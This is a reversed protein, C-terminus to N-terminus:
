ITIGDLFFDLVFALEGWFFEIASKKSAATRGEFESDVTTNEVWPIFVLDELGAITSGSGASGTIRQSGISFNRGARPM